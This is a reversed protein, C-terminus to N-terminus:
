CLGVPHHILLILRRFHKFILLFHNSHVLLRKLLDKLISVLIELLSHLHTFIDELFTLLEKFVLLHLLLLYTLHILQLSNLTLKSCHHANSILLIYEIRSHCALEVGVDGFLLLLDQLHGM